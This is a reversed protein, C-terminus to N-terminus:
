CYELTEDGRLVNQLEQKLTPERPGAHDHIRRSLIRFYADSIETREEDTEPILVEGALLGVGPQLYLALPQTWGQLRHHDHSLFSPLGTDWCQQIASLLVAAPFIMDNRNVNTSNFIAEFTKM